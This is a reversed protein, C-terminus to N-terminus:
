IKQKKQNIQGYIKGLIANIFAYSRESGFEKALEIAEDIIVKPPEKKEIVLEFISLYLISLDIKAIKNVKFRLSFKNIYQDIKEKNKIILITKQDFNDKQAPYFFYSYLQKLIMMRKQHRLDMHNLDLISIGFELDGTKSAIRWVPPNFLGM